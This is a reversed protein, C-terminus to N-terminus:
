RFINSNKKNNNDYSDINIYEVREALELIDEEQIM